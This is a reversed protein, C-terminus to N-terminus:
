HDTTCSTKIVTCKEYRSVCHAKAKKQSDLATRGERIVFKKPDDINQAFSLCHDSTVINKDCENKRIFYSSGDGSVACEHLLNHAATNSSSGGKDYLIGGTAYFTFAVSPWIITDSYLNDCAGNVNSTSFCSLSSQTDPGFGQNIANLYVVRAVNDAFTELDRIPRPLSASFESDFHHVAEHILFKSIFEIKENADFVGITQRCAVLSFYISTRDNNYVFGCPGSHDSQRRLFNHSTERIFFGLRSKHESIFLKVVNSGSPEISESYHDVYNAAIFRMDHILTRLPDGGNGVTHMRQGFVNGSISILLIFFIKKM